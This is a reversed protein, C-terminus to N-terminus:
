SGWQDGQGPTCILAQTLGRWRLQKKCCIPILVSVLLQVFHSSHSGTSCRTRCPSTKMLGRGKLSLPSQPLPPSLNNLALPPPHSWPVWTKLVWCSRHVYSSVPGPLECLVQMPEFQIAALVLLAPFGAATSVWHWLSCWRGGPSEWVEPWAWPSNALVLSACHYDTSRETQKLM